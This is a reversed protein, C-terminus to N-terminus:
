EARIAAVDEALGLGEIVPELAAAVTTQVSSKDIEVINVGHGEALTVKSESDFQHELDRQYAAAQKGAELVAEQQEPTLNEFITESFIMPRTVYEHETQVYYKAQEYFKMRLVWEAENELGDIAGLQLGSYIEGYAMVTPVVGLAEWAKVQVDAPHLRVRLGEIDGVSEVPKSSVLNRISGGFYGLIMAGTNERVDEALKDGIPGSVVKEWHDFDRFVFPVVLQQVSPAFEALYGPATTLIAIQGDELLEFAEGGSGLQADPFLEVTVEGNTLESVIEGFKLIGQGQATSVPGDISAALEVAHAPLATGMALSAALAFQRTTIM